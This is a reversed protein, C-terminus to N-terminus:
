SPLTVRDKNGLGAAVRGRRREEKGGRRRREEEGGERRGLWGDMMERTSELLWTDWVLTRYGFWRICTRSGWKSATHGQRMPRSTLIKMELASQWRKLGVSSKPDFRSLVSSLVHYKVCTVATANSQNKM